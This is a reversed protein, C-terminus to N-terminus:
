VDDGLNTFEALRATLQREQEGLADLLDLLRNAGNSTKRWGYLAVMLGGIGAAGCLGFVVEWVEFTLDAIM